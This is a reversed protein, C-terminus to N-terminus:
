RAVAVVSPNTSAKTVGFDKRLAINFAEELTAPEARERSLRSQGECVGDVYVHTYIDMPRLIICSSLHRSIHVYDRMTMKGHQM